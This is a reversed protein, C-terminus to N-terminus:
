CNYTLRAGAGGVAGQAFGVSGEGEGEVEVRWKMVEECRSASVVSFKTERGSGDLAFGQTGVLAVKGPAREWTDAVSFDGDVSYFNLRTGAGTTELGRFGAPFVFELSCGYANAPVGTFQLETVWQHSRKPGQSVQFRAHNGTNHTPDDQLLQLLLTPSLTGACTRPALDAAPAPLAAALTTTAAASSLLLFTTTLFHM